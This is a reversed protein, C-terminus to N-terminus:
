NKKIVNAYRDFAVFSKEAGATWYVVWSDQALGKSFADFAKQDLRECQYQPDKYALYFACGYAGPSNSLPVVKSSTILAEEPYSLLNKPQCDHVLVEERYRIPLLRYSRKALLPCTSHANYSLLLEVSWEGSQNEVSLVRKEADIQRVDQLVYDVAQSSSVVTGATPSLNSYVWWAVILVGLVLALKKFM